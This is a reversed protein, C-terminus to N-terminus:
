LRSYEFRSKFRGEEDASYAVITDQAQQSGFADPDRLAEDRAINRPAPPDPVVPGLSNLQMCQKGDADRVINEQDAM